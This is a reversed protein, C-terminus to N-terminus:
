LRGRIGSIGASLPSWIGRPVPSTGSRQHGIGPESMGLKNHDKQCGEKGLYDRGSLRELRRGSLQEMAAWLNSEYRFRRIGPAWLMTPHGPYTPFRILEANPDVLILIPIGLGCALGVEFFTGHYTHKKTFPKNMIGVVLNSTVVGNIRKTSLEDPCVGDPENTWDFTVEYGIKTAPHIWQSKIYRRNWASGAFYVRM